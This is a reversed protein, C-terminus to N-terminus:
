PVPGILRRRFFVDRGGGWEIPRKATAHLAAELYSKVYLEEERELQAKLSASIRSIDEGNEATFLSAQAVNKRVLPDSDSVRAELDALVPSMTETLYALEMLCSSINERVETEPDGLAKGLVTLIGELNAGKRAAYRLAQSAMIRSESEDDGLHDTLIGIAARATENNTAAHGLAKSAATALPRDHRIGYRWADELPGIADLLRNDFRGTWLFALRLSKAANIRADASGDSLLGLTTRIAEKHSVEQVIMFGLANMAHLRVLPSRDDMCSALRGLAHSIDGGRWAAAELAKVGALRVHEDDDSAARIAIGTAEWIAKQPNATPTEYQCEMACHRRKVIGFYGYSRKEALVRLSDALRRKGEPGAASLREDIARIVRDGSRSNAAAYAVIAIIRDTAKEDVSEIEQVLRGVAGSIDGTKALIALIGFARERDKASRGDLAFGVLTEIVASPVGWNTGSDSELAVAGDKRIETCSLVGGKECKSVYRGLALLAVGSRRGDEEAFAESLKQFFGARLGKCRYATLALCEAGPMGRWGDHFADNLTDLAPALDCGKEAFHGFANAIREREFSESRLAIGAMKACAGDMGALSKKTALAFCNLITVAAERLRRLPSDAMEGIIAAANSHLNEDELARQLIVWVREDAGYRGKKCISSVMGKVADLRSTVVGNEAAITLGRYAAKRAGRDSGSLQRELADMAAKRTKEHIAAHALAMAAGDALVSVHERVIENWVYKDKLAAELYPIASSIDTGGKCMKELADTAQIADIVREFGTNRNRGDLVTKGLKEIADPAEGPSGVVGPNVTGIAGGPDKKGDSPAVADTRIEEVM